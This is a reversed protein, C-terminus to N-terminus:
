SFRRSPRRSIPLRVERSQHGPHRRGCLDWVISDFVEDIEAEANDEFMPIDRKIEARQAIRKM